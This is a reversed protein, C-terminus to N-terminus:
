IGRGGESGQRSGGQSSVSLGQWRTLRRRSAPLVARPARAPRALAQQSTGRLPRLPPLWLSASVTTCGSLGATSGAKAGDLMKTEMQELRANAKVVKAKVAASFRDFKEVVTRQLRAKAPGV